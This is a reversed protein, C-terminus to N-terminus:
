PANAKGGPCMSIWFSRPLPPMLKIGVALDATDPGASRLVRHHFAYSGASRSCRECVESRENMVQRHKRTFDHKRM